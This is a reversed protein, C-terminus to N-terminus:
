LERLMDVHEKGRSDAFKGVIKFGFKQVMHIAKKNDVFIGGSLIVTKQNLSRSADILEHLTIAGLGVNQYQDAICTGCRSVTGAVLKIGYQLYRLKDAKPLDLSFKVVAIIKSPETEAVFHLKEPKVLSKCLANATKNGYDNLVYFRRTKESLQSLFKIIKEKDNPMLPRLLVIQSNKLLVKHKKIAFTKQNNNM